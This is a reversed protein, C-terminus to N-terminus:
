LMFIVQSSWRGLSPSRGARRGGGRSAGGAGRSAGRAARGAGLSGARATGGRNAGRGREAGGGGRARGGAGRAGSGRGPGGRGPGGERFVVGPEARPRVEPVNGIMLRRVLAELDLNLQYSESAWSAPIQLVFCKVPIM